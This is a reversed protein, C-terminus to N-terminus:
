VINKDQGFLLLLACSFRECFFRLLGTISELLGTISELLGTISLLLGTIFGLCGAESHELRKIQRKIFQPLGEPEIDEVAWVRRVLSMLSLAWRSSRLSLKVVLGALLQAVLEKPPQHPHQWLLLSRGELSHAAELLEGASLTVM